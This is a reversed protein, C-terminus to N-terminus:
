RAAQEARIREALHAPPYPSPPQPNPTPPPPSPPPEESRPNGTGGTGGGGVWVLMKGDHDGALAEIDILQEKLVDLQEEDLAFELRLTRYSLRGRHQLLATAQTLIESFKM